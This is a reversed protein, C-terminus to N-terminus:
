SKLIKMIGGLPPKPMGGSQSAVWAGLRNASENIQALSRRQLLSHVLAATFADGAGVTDKVKVSVGPQEHTAHRDCLLSGQAGRTICVLKLDFRDIVSKCFSTDTRDDIALLDRVKPVEEHNLKVVNARQLSERVIEASYFRQRLNLDFIRLADPRTSDLFTRITTRSHASRQALSGFCIADADRALRQWDDAWELFDWAVAPIIEFQPQGTADLQVQVTGTPHSGDAQVFQDTIGAKALQDRIGQGLADKGVRSAVIGNEGLLHSCYAFNAPAGGLQRGSPLMDWLIEGLGVVVHAATPM